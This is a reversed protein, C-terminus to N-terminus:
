SLIKIPAPPLFSFKASCPQNSFNDVGFLQLPEQLVRLYIQMKKKTWFNVNQGTFGHM